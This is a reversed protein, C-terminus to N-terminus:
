WSMVICTTSTSSWVPSNRRPSVSDAGLAFADQAGASGSPGSHRHPSLEADTGLGQAVPDALGLDVGARPGAERGALRDADLLELALRSRPAPTSVDTM